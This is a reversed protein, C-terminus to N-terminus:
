PMRGPIQQMQQARRQAEQLADQRARSDLDIMTQRDADQRQALRQAEQMADQLAQAEEAQIREQEQQAELMEVMREAGPYHLFNLRQWYLLRTETQAPDGYAGMQYQGVAEQWMQERNSALPASSDCSFLFRDDDLICHWKGSADQEYFDYRNFESYETKGRNNQSVIPRPEDAYAVKFQVIRRFLEAYAAEKLKRKSELRGASQQASFQKAIASQATTDRRGQFSDTIGLLQRAEEYVANRYEMEYRLDGSFQMVDIMAKDGANGIYWIEGDEPDARFDPRDPLTIRTGAKVLRDIIKKNLRNLTNQQDKIKDVDSDGLLRGFLTINRQLFVPYTDPTYSPLKTPQMMPEGTIMDLMPIGHEDRAQELAPINTGLPTNVPATLEEEDEVTEQSAKGGCVPCTKDGHPVVAGCAECRRLRRAQWDDMDELVTDGVYSFRGVGGNDNRYFVIIQTVLDDATGDDGDLSRAEPYEEGEAMEDKGYTARIYSRTQPIKLAVADMDEVSTFVGDQPIIQRPHIISVRVDGVTSHTRVSNDWEVLWYGGGQIPVTREMRDNLEEFPLRDLENRLMDELVKARWEDAQRRATVKPQPIASNITSEINESIINRLHTIKNWNGSKGGRETDLVTLPAIQTEEGRYLRERLDFKAAEVSYAAENRSVWDQWYELRATKGAPIRDMM